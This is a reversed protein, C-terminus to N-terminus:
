KRTSRRTSSKRHRRTHRTRRVNRKSTSTMKKNKRRFVRSKGGSRGKLTLSMMQKRLDTEAKIDAFAKEPTILRKTYEPKYLLGKIRPDQLAQHLRKMKEIIDKKVSLETKEREREAIQQVSDSREQEADEAKKRESMNKELIRQINTLRETDVPTRTGTPSKNDAALFLANMLMIIEDNNIPEYTNILEDDDLIVLPLEYENLIDIIEQDAPDTPDTTDASM